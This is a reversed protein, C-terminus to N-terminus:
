ELKNQDNIKEIEANVLIRNLSNKNINLLSDNMETVKEMFKSISYWALIIVLLVVALIGSSLYVVHHM